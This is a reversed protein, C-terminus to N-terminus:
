TISMIWSKLSRKEPAGVCYRKVKRNGSVASASFGGGGIVVLLAGGFAIKAGGAFPNDLNALGGVVMYGGGLLSATALAWDAVVRHRTRTCNPPGDLPTYHAPPERIGLSCGVLLAPLLSGLARAAITVRRPHGHQKSLRPTLTM